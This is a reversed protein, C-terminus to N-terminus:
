SGALLAGLFHLHIYWPSAATDKRVAAHPLSPSGPPPVSTALDTRPPNVCLQTDVPPCRAGRAAPGEGNVVGGAM